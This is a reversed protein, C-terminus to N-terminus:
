IKIWQGNLKLSKQCAELVRVVKLGNQIDTKPKLNKTICAFFHKLEETLPEKNEIQPAYIDGSHLRIKYEASHGQAIKATKVGKDCIKIPSENDLDDFLLMKKSGVITMKRVKSPDLWGVHIQTLVAKPYQLLIFVVDEINKQIVSLGYASVKEPTDDLLFNLISIDHPALNWLANVDGRIQGLNVRTSYIYYINGLVNNKIYKKIKIIAPNYEFTHGVMLIKDAKKQLLAIKQADKLCTTLPKEVLVNKKANLAQNTLNFHTTAPTAIIVADITSDGFVDKPNTTTKISPNIKKLSNFNQPNLDVVTSLVVNPISNLSRAINPGWYGYGFLACKLM